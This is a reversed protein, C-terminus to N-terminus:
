DEEPEGFKALTLWKEIDAALVQMRMIAIRLTQRDYERLGDLDDLIDRIARVNMIADTRYGDANRPWPRRRAM